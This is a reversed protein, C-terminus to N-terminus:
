YLFGKRLPEEQQSPPPGLIKKKSKFEKGLDKTMETIRESLDTLEEEVTKAINNVNVPEGRMELKDGSTKATPVIIWLVIYPLIGVGSIALFLFGLRLWVPDSIGFYASLGSAVGGIIKEDPNRFLRKGTNMRHRRRARKQSVVPEEDDEIAEAGFDEPRGLIKIVEDLEKMSIIAKGKAKDQFLEAMRVEIDYLIEDCGESDSFHRKITDLYRNLNHYADEDITFPYGGLNVNFIKNM